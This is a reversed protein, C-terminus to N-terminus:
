GSCILTNGSLFIRIAMARCRMMATLFHLRAPKLSAAFRKRNDIYLRQNIPTYKM